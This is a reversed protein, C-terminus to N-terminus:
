RAGACARTCARESPDKATPVSNWTSLATGIEASIDTPGNDIRMAIPLTRWHQPLAQSGVVQSLHQYTGAPAAALFTVAMALALTQRHRTM